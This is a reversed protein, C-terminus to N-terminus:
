TALAMSVASVWAAVPLSCRNLQSSAHQYATALNAFANVMIVFDMDMALLVKSLGLANCNFKVTMELGAQMVLAHKQQVLDMGAAADLRLAIPVRTDLFACVHGTFAIVRIHVSTPASTKAPAALTARSATVLVWILASVM